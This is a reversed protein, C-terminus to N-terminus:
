ADLTRAIEVLERVTFDSELRYELGDDTWLVVTDAALQRQPTRLIHDGSISLGGEGLDQVAAVSEGADVSKRYIADGNLGATQIWLTTSGAPWVLLVGGEPPAVVAAPAGLRTDDAPPLPRGLRRAAEDAAIALAGEQLEPLEGPDATGVLSIETQGISLWGAVTRRVPSVVVASLALAAVAAAVLWGQTRGRSESHRRAPERSATCESDLLDPTLPDVASDVMLHQGISRLVIELRDETLGSM